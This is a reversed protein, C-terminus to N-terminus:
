PRRRGGVRLTLVRDASCLQSLSGVKLDAFLVDLLAQRLARPSLLDESVVFRRRAPNVLMMRRCCGLKLMLGMTWLGM